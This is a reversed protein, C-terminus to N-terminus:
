FSVSLAAFYYGGNFGIQTSNGDYILLGGQTNARNQLRDPYVDFINDAGITIRVKSALSYSINFASSIVSPYTQDRSHNGDASIHSVSGFRVHHMNFEWRGTKFLIDLLIKNAPQSSTLRGREEPNFLTYRYVSDFPLSQAVPSEGIISTKSVNMGVSLQLQSRHIPWFGHFTIDFGSTKTDVANTFFRVANIERKNMSDLIQGVRPVSAARQIAGTLIIRNALKIWYGDITCNIHESVRIALGAGANVSREARLPLVGFAQAIPGNNVYTGTVSIGFNNRGGIQNTASYYQQQLAPARFGNSLSTRISVAPTFRYRMAIKGALNSGFEGYYEYRTAINFLLKKTPEVELEVYASTTYRYRSVANDPGAGPPQSGGIRGSSPAYNSFSGEDGEKIRYHEIRLEAGLTLFNSGSQGDRRVRLPHTFNLNTTNQTFITKNLAFETPANKGLAFQTPNNTQIARGSYFNGGFSNGIDWQWGATSKHVFGTIISADTIHNVVNAQFGDPYLATIVTTTDKPYRYPVSSRDFTYRLNYTSVFYFDTNDNLPYSANILLSTNTSKADGIKRFNARDFGREAVKQNDLLVISDSYHTSAARPIEYYVTSDYIGNRQTYGGFRFAGTINIFGTKRLRYGRNLAMQITQGDSQYYQGVHVNMTTIGTTKKLQLNIAGAIADSGYQASAGDKLVELKEIGAGPIANLDAPASGYGINYNTLLLAASHRRHGNILLLTQDTSLGRLAAPTISSGVGLTQNMSNLSPSNLNLQQSLSTKAPSLVTQLIIDVPVTTQLFNRGSQTRSGLVEVAPIMDDRILSIRLTTQTAFRVRILQQFVFYGAHSVKLMYSGTDLIIRFKGSVDTIASKNGATVTADQLATNNDMVEGTVLVAQCFVRCNFGALFFLLVILRAPYSNVTLCAPFTTHISWQM